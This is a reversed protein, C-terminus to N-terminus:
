LHLAFLELLTDSNFLIYVHFFEEFLLFFFLPFPFFAIFCSLALCFFQFLEHDLHSFSCSLISLLPINYYLTTSNNLSSAKWSIGM